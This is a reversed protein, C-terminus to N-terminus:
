YGAVRAAKVLKNMQKHIEDRRYQKLANKLYIKKQTCVQREKFHLCGPLEVADSMNLNFSGECDGLGCSCNVACNDCCDHKPTVQIPKEDFPAFLTDRRCMETKCYDKIDQECHNALICNHLLVCVAPLGDRGGRGSEQVYCDINKAPGMHYITRVKRCNVGMGFAVTTILFRIHGDDLSLNQVIHKKVTAPSGVHYMEVIRNKPQKDGNFLKGGLFLTFTRFIIAFQKRTQCYIITRGANKGNDKLETIVNAFIQEFPMSKTIYITSYKLNSRDPSKEILVTEPGLHLTDFIKM